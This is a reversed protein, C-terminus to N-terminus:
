GDFLPMGIVAALAILMFCIRRFTTENAFGFLHSGALLGLGYAPCIVASLIIAKMTLLGGMMYAVASIVSSLAFYLVLNARVRAAPIAGGLWYAVVPPGGLQAVGSFVGAVGGTAITLPLKPRGHYRWGSALFVLLGLVIISIIWRLTLPPTLALIATGVPIGILAGTIMTAVERRNARRWADPLLGLAMVGDFILLLAAALRPETAASALPVFILAAGFGSFGRTLGAVLAAALLFLVAPLSVDALISQLIAPFEIGSMIAM